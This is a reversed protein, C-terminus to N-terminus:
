VGGNAFLEALALEIDALRQSHEYISPPQNAKQRALFDAKAAEYEAESIEILDPHQPLVDQTTYLYAVNNGDEIDYVQTGPVNLDINLGKYDVSGNPQVLNSIKVAKM